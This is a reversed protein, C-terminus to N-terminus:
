VIDYKYGMLKCKIIIFILQIKNKYEEANCSIFVKKGDIYRPKEIIVLHKKKSKRKEKKM